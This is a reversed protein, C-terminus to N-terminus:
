RSPAVPTEALDAESCTYCPKRDLILTACQLHRCDRRSHWLDGFRTTHINGEFIRGRSTTPAPEPDKTQPPRKPVRSAEVLGARKGLLWGLGLALARALASVLFFIGLLAALWCYVRIDSTLVSPQVDFAEVVRAGGAGPLSQAALAVAAAKAIAM